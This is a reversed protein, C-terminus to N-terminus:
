TNITLCLHGVLQSSESGCESGSCQINLACSQVSTKSIFPFDSFGSGSFVGRPNPYLLADFLSLECILWDLVM